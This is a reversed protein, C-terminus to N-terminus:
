LRPDLVKLWSVFNQLLMVQGETVPDPSFHMVENRVVRVEELTAVFVKRDVNWQLKDWNEPAGLLRVYEGFTLDDPGSIRREVDRLDQAEGLTRSDFTEAICRRLRREIEGILLFPRALQHYEFSLDAMTIIGSLTGDPCRVFVFEREIITSILPLLDDDLDVVEAHIVADKLKNYPNRLEAQAISKWSVAGRLKHPSSLVALQSYDHKLMLSQALALSADLPVSVVECNASRIHRARLSVTPVAQRVNRAMPQVRVVRVVDDIWAQDFPPETTLGQAQLADNIAAVVSSDRRVAGWYRILERVTREPPENGVPELAQRVLEDWDSMREIGALLKLVTEADSPRNEPSDDLLSKLLDFFRQPLDPRLAALKTVDRPESEDGSAISYLVAGLSYLDSRATLAGHSREEPSAYALDTLPRLQAPPEDVFIATDFDGVHAGRRDDLWINRPSLDRHLIGKLHLHSLARCIQRGYRLMEALPVPTGDKKVERIHDALTGYPLYEFVMYRVQGDSDLDYLRVINDHAGIKGLVRTEQEISEPDALAQEPKLLVLAVSRHMKTDRALYAVKRHGEGLLHEINFRGAFNDGPELSPM